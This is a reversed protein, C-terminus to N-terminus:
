RVNTRDRQSSVSRAKEPSSSDLLGGGVFSAASVNSVLQDVLAEIM